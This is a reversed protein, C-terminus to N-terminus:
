LKNKFAEILNCAGCLTIQVSSELFANKHLSLNLKKAEYELRSLQSYPITIELTARPVFPMIFHQERAHLICDQVSQTYARVLGGVGLITGGFYRVVICGCGVLNEGRLVKLCPMGASGRPEGDDSFSEIIQSHENLIRSASVFHRAKQHKVRLSHMLDKMQSDTTLFGLFKSGKSEFFGNACTNSSFVQM